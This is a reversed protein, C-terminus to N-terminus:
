SSRRPASGGSRAGRIRWTRGSQKWGVMVHARQPASTVDPAQTPSRKQPVLQRGHEALARSDQDIWSRGGRNCRKAKRGPRAPRMPGCRLRSTRAQRCGAPSRRIEHWGCRAIRPRWRRSPAPGSPRQRRHRRSRIPSAASGARARSGRRPRGQRHGVALAAHLHIRYRLALSPGSAASASSRQRAGRHRDRVGPDTAHKGSSGSVREFQQDAVVIRINDGAVHEIAPLAEGAEVVLRQQPAAKRHRVTNAEAGVAGPDGDAAVVRVFDQKVTPGGPRPGSARWVGHQPVHDARVSHAEGAVLSVHQHGIGMRAVHVDVCAAVGVPLASVLGTPHKRHEVPRGVEPAAAIRLLSAGPADIDVGAIFTSAHVVSNWVSAKKSRAGHQAAARPRVVPKPAVDLPPEGPRDM